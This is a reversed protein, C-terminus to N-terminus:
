PRIEFVLGEGAGGATATGYLNGSSDLTIAAYPEGGDNGGTFRHLVQEVWTEHERTLRYAVGCGSAHGCGGGNIGGIVTTGYLNGKSDFSVGALPYAGDGNVGIFQHIVSEHWIGGSGPSLEYVVGGEYEGARSTTGYMNGQPDLTVGSTPTGGDYGNTFGYLVDEKWSGHPLPKLRFVTGYGYSSGGEMTTGYLTGASDMTLSAVPLLGDGEYSGFNYLVTEKWAGNSKPSLRFVTGCGGNCANGGFETTGYLDGSLDEILGSRPGYGDGNGSFRHIIQETWTGGSSPSLRFVTGCENTNSGCGTRGGGQTTGYLNGAGDLLLSSVPFAGDGSSDTFQYLVSVVFKGNVSPTLEFVTGCGLPYNCNLAGGYKTTGYLNGSGDSILGAYSFAGDGHYPFQYLTNAQWNGDSGQTFELVTGCGNGCGHDGGASTTLYLDGSPDTMLDGVPTAGGHKPSFRYIVNESWAGKGQTLEYVVGCGDSCGVAGGYQTSGYVRGDAGLVVGGSPHRGDEPGGFKHLTTETWRGHSLKFVSGMGAYVGYTTGFINGKEDLAVGGIPNAGDQTGSFSYFISESWTGDLNPSLQFVLGCGMLYDGKCPGSALGGYETTGYLNGDADFVLNSKPTAGDPTGQFVHIYTQTWTGNGNPSLEFIAGCGPLKGNGTCADYDNGGGASVAGYLNGAQDAILGGAPDLFNDEGFSYLVSEKWGSSTPTLEFVTGCNYVGGSLTTGFLNGLSDFVLRGQPYAGDVLGYQYEDFPNGKFTYLLTENWQGEATPSLEFVVGLNHGYSATGYLNGAADAILGALPFAGGPTADFAHIAKESSAQAYKLWFLSLLLCLVTRMTRPKM